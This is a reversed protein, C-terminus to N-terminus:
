GVIADARALLPGPVTIRLAKATTKNIVLEFRAPPMVPLAASTAGKLIRGAYIGAARYMDNTLAGYSMLGGLVVAGRTAYITPLRSQAALAVIQEQRTSLFADPSVVLMRVRRLAMRIFATEVEQETAADFVVLERGKIRAATTVNEVNTEFAGSLRSNDLYGVLSSAGPRLELLLELRMSAPGATALSTGTVNAEPRNLSDVVGVEVADSGTAFVIPITSAAATAALALTSAGIAIIVAAQGRVLDAALEPLREYEGDATRYEIALNRGEVFGAEQLGQRIAAVPVAYPGEFSVGNLLGVMPLKPQQARAVLPWAAAGGIGAIFERRRM